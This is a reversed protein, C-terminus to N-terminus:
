SGTKGEEALLDILEEVILLLPNERDDTRLEVVRAYLQLLREAKRRKRVIAKCEGLGMGSRERLARVEDLFTSM